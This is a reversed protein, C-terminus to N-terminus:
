NGSVTHDLWAILDALVEARDTENFMEHRGGNYYRTTVDLGAKRYRAVVKDLWALSMHIPDPTAPCSTSRSARPSPPSPTPTARGPAGAKLSAVSAPELGFGCLPDAIYADVRVPDRSLWDYDTRAPQFAANFM